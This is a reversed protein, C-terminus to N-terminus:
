INLFGYSKSTNNRFSNISKVAFKRKPNDLKEFLVILYLNLTIWLNNKIKKRPLIRVVKESNNNTAKNYKQM